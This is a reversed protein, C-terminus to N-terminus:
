RNNRRRQTKPTDAPAQTAAPQQPTPQSNTAFRSFLAGAIGELGTVDYVQGHGERISKRRRIEQICSELSRQEGAQQYAQRLVQAQRVETEVEYVEGRREFEEKARSEAAKKIEEGLEPEGVNIKTIVIGLGLIDKRGNTKMENYFDKKEAPSLTALDEGTVLATLSDILDQKSATLEEFTRRTGEVRLVQPFIDDLISKVGAEGGNNLYQQLEIGRDSPKFTISASLKVELGVKFSGDTGQSGDDVAKCFFKVQFDQNITVVSINITDIFFPFYPALLRYGESKVKTTRTGWVTVLGKHPPNAPIEKLGYGFMAIAVGIVLFGVFFKWLMLALGILIVLSIVWEMNIVPADTVPKNAM